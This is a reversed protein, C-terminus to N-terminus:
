RGLERGHQRRSPRAVYRYGACTNYTRIRERTRAASSSTSRSAPAKGLPGLARHRDGLPRADGRRRANFGLFGTLATRSHGDIALPDKGLLLPAGGDRARLGRRGAAGFFTEGLGYLGEDTHM